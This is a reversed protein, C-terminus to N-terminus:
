ALPTWLAAVAFCILSFAGACEIRRAVTGGFGHSATGILAAGFLSGAAGVVVSAAIMAMGTFNLGDSPIFQPLLALLFILNFPSSIGVMLGAALDRLPFDRPRDFVFGERRRNALMRAALAILLAAGIWKMAEFAGHSIRFVGLMVSLAVAALVLNAILVGLSTRVAAGMGDRAARGITLALCPGPIATNIASASAVAALILMDM